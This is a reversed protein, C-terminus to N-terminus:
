LLFYIVRPTKKERQEKDLTLNKLYEPALDNGKVMYGLHPSDNCIGYGAGFIIPPMEKFQETWLERCYLAQLVKIYAADHTVYIGYTSLRPWTAVFCSRASSPIDVDTFVFSIKPPLNSNTLTQEFWGKVFTYPFMEGYTSINIKVQDLTEAYRGESWDTVWKNSRRCHHDKLNYRDVDPLGEFSDFIILERNILKALISLKASSGGAYCGCEVIAGEAITNVLMEAIFLGDTPTSAIPVRSDIREFRAVIEKRTNKDVSHTEGNDIFKARFYPYSDLIRDDYHVILSALKSIVKGKAAFASGQKALNKLPMKFSTNPWVSIKSDTM